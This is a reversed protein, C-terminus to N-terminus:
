DAQEARIYVRCRFTSDINNRQALAVTFSATIGPLVRFSYIGAATTLKTVAGVPTTTTTAFAAYTNLNTDLLGAPGAAGPVYVNRIAQGNTNYGYLTLTYVVAVESDNTITFPITSSAARNYSTSSNLNYYTRATVNSAYTSGWTHKWKAVNASAAANDAAAYYKAMSVSVALSASAATLVALVCAALALLPPRGRKDSFKIGLVTM